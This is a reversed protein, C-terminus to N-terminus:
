PGVTARSLMSIVGLPNARTRACQRAVLSAPRTAPTGHGSKRVGQSMPWSTSRGAAPGLRLTAVGRRARGRAGTSACPTALLGLRPPQGWTSDRPAKGPAHVTVTAISATDTGRACQGVAAALHQQTAISHPARRREEPSHRASHLQERHLLAASSTSVTRATRSCGVSSGVPMRDHPGRRGRRRNPPLGLEIHGKSRAAAPMSGSASVAAQDDISAEEAHHDSATALRAPDAGTSTAVKRAVSPWTAERGIDRFRGARHSSIAAWVDRQPLSHPQHSIACAVDAGHAGEAGRRRPTHWAHPRRPPRSWALPWRAGRQRCRAGGRRGKVNTPSAM